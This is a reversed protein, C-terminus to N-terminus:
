RKKKGLSDLEREYEDLVWTEVKFYLNAILKALEAAARYALRHKAIELRSQGRRRLPEDDPNREIRDKIAKVKAEITEFMQRTEQDPFEKPMLISLYDEYADLVRERLKDNSTALHELANELRTRVHSARISM